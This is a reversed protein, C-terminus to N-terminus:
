ECFHEIQERIVTQRENLSHIVTRNPLQIKELIKTESMLDIQYDYIKGTINVYSEIFSDVLFYKHYESDADFIYVYDYPNIHLRDEEYVNTLHISGSDLTENFNDKLVSGAILDYTKSNNAFRVKLRM